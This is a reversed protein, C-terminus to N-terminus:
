LFISDNSVANYDFNEEHYKSKNKHQRVALAITRAANKNVLKEIARIKM